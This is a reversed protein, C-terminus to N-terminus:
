RRGEPHKAPPTDAQLRASSFHRLFAQLPDTPGNADDHMPRILRALKAQQQSDQPWALGNRSDPRTSPGKLQVSMNRVHAYPLCLAAARWRVSQADRLEPWPRLILPSALRDAMTPQLTHDLPDCNHKDKFHFVIPLGFYARPWVEGAPHQPAHQPAHGGTVRRVADPEPWHSRGPRGGQGRNRSQRFDKLQKIAYKWAETAQHRIGTAFVLSCGAAQAEEPSVPTLVPGRESDSRVLVAGLGRRTRAGVGGFSAWWRLAEYVRQRQEETLTEDLGLRLTWRLGERALKAQDQDQFQAQAPFLAYAGANWQPWDPNKSGERYNAADELRLDRTDGVEVRLWVRSARPPKGLGGWVASEDERLASADCIGYRQRALLRWWFRLQGRIASARVPMREDVRGAKVGGGYLPTVLQCAYTQWEIRDAVASLPEPCILDPSLAADPPPRRTPM